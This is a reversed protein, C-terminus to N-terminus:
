AVQIGSFTNGYAMQTQCQSWSCAVWVRSGANCNVIVTNSSSGRNGGGPSAQMFAIVSGEMVINSDARTDSRSLINASFLYLGTVPCLFEHNQPNYGAGANSLVMDFPFRSGEGITVDQTLAVSFGAPNDVGSLFVHFYQLHYQILM